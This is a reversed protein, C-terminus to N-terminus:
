RRGARGTPAPAPLETTPPVVGLHRAWAVAAPLGLDAVREYGKQELVHQLGEWTRGRPSGRLAREVVAFVDERSLQLFADLAESGAPWRDRAVQEFFNPTTFTLEDTSM